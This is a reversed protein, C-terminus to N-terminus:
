PFHVRCLGDSPMVCDDPAGVAAALFSRYAALPHEDERRDCRYFGVLTALVWTRPDPPPEPVAAQRREIQAVRREFRSTM